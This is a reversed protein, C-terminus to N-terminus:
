PGTSLSALAEQMARVYKTGKTGFADSGVEGTFLYEEAATAGQNHAYGLIGLKEQPSMSRYISSNKTLHTHNKLTYSQFLKDQLKPDNLFVKNLAPTYNRGVNSLAAAGMQYRGLYHNGSGGTINYRNSSEINAVEDGFLNLQSNTFTIVKAKPKPADPYSMVNKANLLDVVDQTLRGTVPLGHQKQLKRVARKTGGGIEGDIGNPKYGLNTLLSQASKIDKTDNLIDLPNALKLPDPGLRSREPFLDIGLGTKGSKIYKEYFSPKVNSEMAEFADFDVAGLGLAADRKGRPPFGFNMQNVIGEPQYYSRELSPHELEVPDDRLFDGTVVNFNTRNNRGREANKTAERRSKEIKNEIDDLASSTLSRRPTASSLKGSRMSDRIIKDPYYGQNILDNADDSTSSYAVSTTPVTPTNGNDDRIQETVVAKYLKAVTNEEAFNTTYSKGKYEFEGGSGQEDRAEAFAQGFNSKAGLGTPKQKVPEKAPTSLGDLIDKFINGMHVTGEINVIFLATALATKM